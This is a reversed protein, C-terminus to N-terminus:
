RTDLLFTVPGNNHISVIMEAGFQGTEISLGSLSLNEIFKKYLAEAKEPNAAKSFSPRTGKSVDAVLTFQPVVLLEGKIAEISHNMRGSSDEFIRYSLIRKALRDADQATDEKNIGLLIVLGTNIKSYVSENITVNAKTVRQILAKM